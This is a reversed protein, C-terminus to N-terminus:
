KRGIAEFGKCQKRKRERKFEFELSDFILLAFTSKDKFFPLILLSSRIQYFHSCFFFSSFLELNIQYFFLTEYAQQATQKYNLM